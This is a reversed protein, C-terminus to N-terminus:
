LPAFFGVVSDASIERCNCSARAARSRAKETAAMAPATVSFAFPNMVMSPVTESAVSLLPILRSAITTTPAKKESGAGIRETMAAARFAVFGEAASPPGWEGCLGM